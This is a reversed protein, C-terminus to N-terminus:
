TMRPVGARAEPQNAIDKQDVVPPQIDKKQQHDRHSQPEQRQLFAFQNVAKAIRVPLILPLDWM